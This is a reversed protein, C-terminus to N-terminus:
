TTLEKEMFVYVCGKRREAENLKGIWMMKAEFVRYVKCSLTKWRLETAKRTDTIRKNNVLNV